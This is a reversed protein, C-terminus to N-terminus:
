SEGGQTAEFGAFMLAKPELVDWDNCFENPTPEWIQAIKMKYAQSTAIFYSETPELGDIECELILFKENHQRVLISQKGDFLAMELIYNIGNHLVKWAPLKKKTYLLHEDEFRSDSMQIYGEYESDLANFYAELGKRTKLKSSLKSESMRCRRDYMEM